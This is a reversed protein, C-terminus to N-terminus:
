FFAEFLVIEIAKVRLLFLKVKESIAEEKARAEEYREEVHHIHMYLPDPGEAVENKVVQGM